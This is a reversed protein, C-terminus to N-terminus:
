YVKKSSKGIKMVWNGLGEIVQALGLQVLLDKVRKEWLTFWKIYRDIEVLARIGSTPFLGGM